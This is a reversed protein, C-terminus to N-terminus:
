PQRASRALFTVSEEPTLAADALWDFILKYRTLDEEDGLHLDSTLTELVVMEPDDPDAFRYLSFATHPLYFEGIRAAFPLVRLTVSPLAALEVLHM